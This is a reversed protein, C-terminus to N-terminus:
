FAHSFNVFLQKDEKSEAYDIMIITAQNWAIRFGLGQSYKYDKLGAKHEDDWVRGFDLFPVLNLAFTEDGVRFQYFKWRLEINGFGMARGVFRDQKYGRLIRLGGLGAVIGETGWLNRYEFFPVNGDSVGFGFRSAVVLKEFVRPFPSWFFKGHGFYKQFDFDSGIAKTAKEYTAELFIGSNPDPEFDRTDMVVGLRISNVYGGHYGLIKGAEQDETLRTKGNPAKGSTSGPFGDLLPDKADIWKGDFAHVINNGVRTGAVLRVTGHVFSRETSLALQPMEIQYRNYLRDTVNFGPTPTFGSYVRGGLQVPDGSGGPRMYTLNAEQDSYTSNTILNGGPQNRNHYDLTKMSSEGIGFYLTTPTITMYADARLRWQTNAIYPMDLSLQHYQANKTTNFYQAFFRVRYPTYEFLPEIKRGNNYAYVRVGYGFGENPDSNLLPLGTPYWGDKKVVLDKACMHKSKDIPFPLDKREPPKDCTPDIADQALIAPAGVTLLILFIAYTQFRNM